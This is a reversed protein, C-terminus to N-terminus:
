TPGGVCGKYVPRTPAEALMARTIGRRAGPFGQVQRRLAVERTGPPSCTPLAQELAYCEYMTPIAEGREIAGIRSVDVDASDALAAISMRAAKRRARVRTGIETM